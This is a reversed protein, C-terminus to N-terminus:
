RRVVVRAGEPVLEFLDEIDETKMRVCGESLNKGISDPETTGHIGFGTRAGDATAFGLWRSGIVHDPDGFMLVRGTKPDTWTPNKTKWRISFTGEPTREDKGLGVRYDVIHCDGLLLWLRFASKDVILSLTELPVKLSMGARLKEPAVDNVKAVLAPLVMAGTEKKVRACITTLNDGDKVVVQTTKTMPMTSFVVSKALRRSEDLWKARHEEPISADVVRSSVVRRL